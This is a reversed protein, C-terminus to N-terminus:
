ELKAGADGAEKLRQFVMKYLSYAMFIMSEVEYGDISHEGVHPSTPDDGRSSAGHLNHQLNYALSEIDKNDNFVKKYDPIDNGNSNKTKYGLNILAENFAVISNRLASQAAGTNLTYLEKRATELYELSQKFAEDVGDMKLKPLEIIEYEGAGLKPAFELLWKYADIKYDYELNEYTLKLLSKGLDRTASLINMDNRPPEYDDNTHIYYLPSIDGTQDKFIKKLEAVGEYISPLDNQNYSEPYNNQFTIERIHSVVINSEIISLRIQIHFKVEKKKNSELSRYFDIERLAKKSISFCFEIGISSMSKNKNNDTKPHLYQENLIEGHCTDIIKDNIMLGGAAQYVVQNEPIGGITILASIKPEIHKEEISM